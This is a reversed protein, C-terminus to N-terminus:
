PSFRSAFSVVCSSFKSSNVSYRISLARRSARSASRAASAYEAPDDVDYVVPPVVHKRADIVPTLAALLPNRALASPSQALRMGSAATSDVEPGSVNWEHSGPLRATSGLLPAIASAVVRAAVRPAVGFVEMEVLWMGASVAAHTARSMM